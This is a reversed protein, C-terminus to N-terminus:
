IDEKVEVSDRMVKEVAHDLSSVEKSLSPVWKEFVEGVEKPNVTYVVSLPATLSELIKEVGETYVVEAKNLAPTPAPDRPLEAVQLHGASGELVLHM